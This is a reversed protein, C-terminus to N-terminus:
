DASGRRLEILFNLSLAQPFRSNFFLREQQAPEECHQFVDQHSCDVHFGMAGLIIDGGNSDRDGKFHRRFLGQFEAFGNVLFGQM